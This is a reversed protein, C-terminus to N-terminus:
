VNYYRLSLMVSVILKTVPAPDKRGFKQVERILHNGGVIVSIM